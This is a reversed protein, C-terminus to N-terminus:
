QDGDHLNFEDASGPTAALAAKLNIVLRGVDKAAKIQAVMSQGLCFVQGAGGQGSRAAMMSAAALDNQVRDAVGGALALSQQPSIALTGHM